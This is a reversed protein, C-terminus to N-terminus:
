IEWRRSPSQYSFRSGLASASADYPFAIFPRGGSHPSPQCSQCSACTTFDGSHGDFPHHRAASPRHAADRPITVETERHSLPHCM